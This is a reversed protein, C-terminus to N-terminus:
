KRDYLWDSNDAPVYDGTLMKKIRSVRLLNENRHTICHFTAPARIMAVLSLYEQESLQNFSKSYYIRSADEFGNVAKGQHHGLYVKNIFLKLITDKPTLADFAFRSILTQKIKQVGPKFDKFYFIKVLGQSITTLGTGPTDFDYGKHTYFNPDQVKLLIDLQERSLDSLELKMAESQLAKQVILPTDKRANVVVIFNYIIFVAVGAGLIQLAARLKRKM